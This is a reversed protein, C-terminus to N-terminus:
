RLPRAIEIWELPRGCLSRYASPAVTILQARPSELPQLLFANLTTYANWGSGPELIEPFSSGSPYTLTVTHVGKSLYLDAVPAYLTFLALENRVEGVHRGDVSVEFGRAFSGALYLAYRQSSPVVLHAVASGPATPALSHSADEHAWSGPWVVEDGYAVTPPPSQYATLQAHDAAASRALSAVAPCSPVSVPDLACLPESAGGREANGCYPHSDTEGLPALDLIQTSPHAPRQWLDYYRGERVLAFTSPPRAEAPSRQTVISRFGELLTPSFADIPAWAAETLVTGDALPLTFPRYEAPETPAGERLFHRDAYVEYMNVFTPEKGKLLPDFSAQEALRARPALTVDHYALVNSWVVGFTLALLLYSGSWRVARRKSSILLAGGTLAAALLAPSSIALAKGTVWPTAGALDVIAAGLLASGAYLLPGLQRRTSALAIGALAGAIVLAIFPVTQAAAPTFRFDGVPWIGALQWGSLPGFLNGLRTHASQGESFLGADNALFTALVAWVPIMGAATTLAAAGITRLRGWLVQARRAGALSIVLLMLFAPAVWGGAGIGLVQILAGAVLGLPIAARLQEALSREREEAALRAAVAIGLALTFAATIEKIGGWLAYGYLLAPQCGIFAVLARLWPRAILRECFSWIALAIGAGCLAEYPQFIWASDIGSLGHGLGLLVFAGLPYSAGIDGTFTLSFTSPALGAVSRGHSMIIDAVNLWTSTDDLKVFGTFTAQGSFIVPAGYALIAAIAVLAPIAGIPARRPAHRARALAILLGIAALAGCLPVAVPASGAFATLTGALVLAAALGVPILLAAGLSRGSALEVLTGFGTGLAAFLLPFAVWALLLGM